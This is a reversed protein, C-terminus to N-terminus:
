NRTSGVQALMTNTATRVGRREFPRQHAFSFPFGDAYGGRGAVRTSMPIM